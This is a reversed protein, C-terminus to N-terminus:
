YWHRSPSYSTGQRCIRRGAGGAEVAFSDTMTAFRIVYQELIGHKYVSQQKRGGLLGAETGTAM